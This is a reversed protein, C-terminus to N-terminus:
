KSCIKFTLEMVNMLENKRDLCIISYLFADFIGGRHIEEENQMLGNLTKLEEFDEKWNPTAKLQEYEEDSDTKLIEKRLKSRKQLIEDRRKSQEPTILNKHKLVRVGNIFDCQRIAKHFSAFWYEKDANYEKQYAELIGKLEEEEVLNFLLKYMHSLDSDIIRNRLGNKFEQVIDYKM